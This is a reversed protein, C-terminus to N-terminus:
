IGFNCHCTGASTQSDDRFTDSIFGNSKKHLQEAQMYLSSQLAPRIEKMCKDKRPLQGEKPTSIGPLDLLKVAMLSCCCSNIKGEKMWAALVTHMNHCVLSILKRKVRKMQMRHFIVFSAYARSDVKRGPLDAGADAEIQIQELFKGSREVLGPLIEASLKNHLQREGDHQSHEFQKSLEQIDSTSLCVTSWHQSGAEELNGCYVRSDESNPSLYFYSTGKADCGIKHRRLM